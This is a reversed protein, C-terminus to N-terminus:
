YVEDVIEEKEVLSINMSGFHKYHQIVFGTLLSFIALNIVIATIVFAQPVPDVSQLIFKNIEEVTEPASPYIPPKPFGPTQPVRFGILIAFVALTDSFIALAIVKKLLSKDMFIGYVAIILNALLAFTTTTFILTALEM